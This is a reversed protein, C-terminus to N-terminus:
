TLKNIFTNKFTANQFNLRDPLSLSEYWQRYDQPKLDVKSGTTYKESHHNRCLFCSFIFCKKLPEALFFRWCTLDSFLKCKFKSQLIRSKTRRTRNTTWTCGESYFLFVQASLRTMKFSLPASPARNASPPATLGRRNIAREPIADQWCLYTTVNEVQASVLRNYFLNHGDKPSDAM